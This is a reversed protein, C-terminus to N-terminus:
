STLPSSVWVATPTMTSGVPVHNVHIERMARRVPAHERVM